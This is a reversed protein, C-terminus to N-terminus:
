DRYSMGSARLRESFSWEENVSSFVQFWGGKQKHEDNIPVLKLQDHEPHRVIGRVLIDGKHPKSEGRIVAISDNDGDMVIGIDTFTHRSKGVATSSVCRNSVRNSIYEFSNAIDRVENAVSAFKNGEYYHVRPHHDCYKVFVDADNMPSKLSIKYNGIAPIFWLDGQRHTGRKFGIISSSNVRTVYEPFGMRYFDQRHNLNDERSVVDFM